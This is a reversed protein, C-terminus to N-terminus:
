DQLMISPSSPCFPGTDYKTFHEEFAISKCLHMLAYIPTYDPRINSVFFLTNTMLNKNSQKLVCLLITFHTCHHSYFRFYNISWPGYQYPCQSRRTDMGPVYRCIWSEFSRVQSFLSSYGFAGCTDHHSTTSIGSLYWDCSTCRQCFLASGFNAQFLPM